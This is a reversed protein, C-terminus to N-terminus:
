SMSCPQKSRKTIGTEPKESVIFGGAMLFFPERSLGTYLYACVRATLVEGSIHVSTRATVAQDCLYVYGRETLTQDSLYAWARAGPMQYCLHACARATM